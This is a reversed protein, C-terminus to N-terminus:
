TMPMLVVWMPAPSFASFMPKAMGLLNHILKDGVAIHGSPGGQTKGAIGDSLEVLDIKMNGASEIKVGHVGAGIGMNLPNDGAVNQHTDVCFGDGVLGLQINQDIGQFDPIGNGRHEEDVSFFPGDHEGNSFVGASCNM